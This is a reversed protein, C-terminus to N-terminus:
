DKDYNDSNEIRASIKINWMNEAKQQKLQFKVYIWKKKDKLMYKINKFVKIETAAWLKCYASVILGILLM